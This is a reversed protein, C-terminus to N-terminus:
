FMETMWPQPGAFLASAVDLADPAGDLLGTSVLEHASLYSAYLPALARVDCRLDGRGGRRVVGRGEEVSLVFRGANDPRVDDVIELHLDGRTTAPWGRAQLAAPVDVLRVMFRQWRLVRLAQEELPLWSPEAPAGQLQATAIMSRHDALFSRLARAARPTAVVHDHVQLEGKGAHAEKTTSTVAYGQVEGDHEFVVARRRPGNPPELVREWLWPARELHGNTARARAAHLAFLAARDDYTADRVACPRDGPPIAHLPLEWLVRHGAVEYGQKRYLGQTAPYLSALCLGRRHADDLARRMMRDALGRGRHAAAVAVARLGATPVARGGFHQALPWAVYGGVVVDGKKAVVLHDRDAGAPWAVDAPVEFLLAEAAVGRFARADDDSAAVLEVDSM